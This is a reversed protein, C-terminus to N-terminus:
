PYSVFWKRSLPGWNLPPTDGGIEIPTENQFYGYIPSHNGHKSFIVYNGNSSISYDIFQDPTKIVDGNLLQEAYIEAAKGYFFIWRKDNDSLFFIGACMLVVLIVIFILKM